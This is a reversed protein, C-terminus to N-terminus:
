SKQQSSPKKNKKEDSDSLETSDINEQVDVVDNRMKQKRKSSSLFNLGSSKERKLSSTRKEDENIVTSKEKDIRHPTTSLFDLSPAKMLHTSRKSSSKKKEDSSADKKEKSVKENASTFEKQLRPTKKTTREKDHQIKSTSIADLSQGKMLSLGIETAPKVKEKQDSHQKEHTTKTEDAKQLPNHKYKSGYESRLHNQLLRTMGTDSMMVEACISELESDQLKSEKNKKLTNQITDLLKAYVPESEALQELYQLKKVASSHKAYQSLEDLRQQIMTLDAKTNTLVEIQKVDVTKNELIDEDIKALEKGIKSIFGKIETDIKKYIEKYPKWRNKSIDIKGDLGLGFSYFDYENISNENTTTFVDDLKNPDQKTNILYKKIKDFAAVYFSHRLQKPYVKMPENRSSQAM